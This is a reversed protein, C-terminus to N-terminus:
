VLSVISSGNRKPPIMIIGMRTPMVRYGEGVQKYYVGPYGTSSRSSEGLQHRYKM